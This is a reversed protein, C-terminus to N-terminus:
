SMSMINKYICRPSFIFPSTSKFTASEYPVLFIKLHTVKSFNSGM